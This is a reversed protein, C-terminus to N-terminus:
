MKRNQRALSFGMRKRNMKASTTTKATVRVADFGTARALSV